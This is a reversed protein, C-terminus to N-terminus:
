HGIWACCHFKDCFDLGERLSVKDYYVLGYGLVMMPMLWLDIKRVVGREVAPDIAHGHEGVMGMAIDKDKDVDQIQPVDQLGYPTTDTGKEENIGPRPTQPATTSM